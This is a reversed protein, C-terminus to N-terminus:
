HTMRMNARSFTIKVACVVPLHFRNPAKLKPSMQTDKIVWFSFASTLILYDILARGKCSKPLLFYDAVQSIHGAL